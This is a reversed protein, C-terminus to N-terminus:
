KCTKEIKNLTKSQAEVRQKLDSVQKWPSRKEFFYLTIHPAVELHQFFHTMLFEDMVLHAQLNVWLYQGVMESPNDSVYATYTDLRVNRM